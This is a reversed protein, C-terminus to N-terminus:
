RHEQNVMNNRFEQSSRALDSQEKLTLEDSNNTQIWKDGHLRFIQVKLGFMREFEQEVHSIKDWSKITLIGSDHTKRIDEIYTGPPIIHENGSPEHWNYSPSYFELKLYPFCENFKDQIEDIKKQDFIKLLM